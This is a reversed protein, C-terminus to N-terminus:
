QALILIGVPGCEKQPSCPLIQKREKGAKAARGVNRPERDWRGDEFSCSHHCREDWMVRGREEAEEM